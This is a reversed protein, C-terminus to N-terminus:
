LDVDEDDDTINETRDNSHFSQAIPSEIMIQIVDVTPTTYELELTKM